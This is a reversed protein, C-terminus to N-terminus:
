HQTCKRLTTYVKDTNHVSEDTNHVSEDTNHVSEDLFTREGVAGWGGRQVALPGVHKPLLRKDSM